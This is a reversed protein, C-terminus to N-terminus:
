MWFMWRAAVSFDSGPDGCRRVQEVLQYAAAVEAQLVGFQSLEQPCCVRGQCRDGQRGRAGARHDRSAEHSAQRAGSVGFEFFESGRVPVGFRRFKQLEEIRAECFVAALPTM